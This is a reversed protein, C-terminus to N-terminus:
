MGRRIRELRNLKSYSWGSLGAFATVQKRGATYRKQTSLTLERARSREMRKVMEQSFAQASMYGKSQRFDRLVEGPLEQLM